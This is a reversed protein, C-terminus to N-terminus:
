AAFKKVRNDNKLVGQTAEKSFLTRITYFMIRVDEYLSMNVIYILDMQLKEYPETSYRGFVQAYGTLGAKAMLRLNFEPLEETYQKIIEPREPRPGVITMDGKLINLIQPLEDLRYQRLVKGVKTIRTDGEAALVAVGNKEADTRMSRFKLIRFPRENRTLRVQKYLVPGGDDRKIMVAIVGVVPLAFVLAILSLAIDMARKIIRYEIRTGGNEYYFVPYEDAESIATNNKLLIDGIKPRAFVEIGHESCFKVINNRQNSEINPIFVAEALLLQTMDKDIDSINITDIVNLRKSYNFLFNADGDRKIVITCLAPVRKFYLKNGVLSWLGSFSIQAILLWITRPLNPKGDTM